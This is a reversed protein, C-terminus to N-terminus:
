PGFAASCRVQTQIRVGNNETIGDLKEDTPMEASLELVVPKKLLAVFDRTIM